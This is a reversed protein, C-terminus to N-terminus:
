WYEHSESFYPLLFFRYNKTRVAILPLVKEAHFAQNNVDERHLWNWVEHQSYGFKVFRRGDVINFSSSTSTPRQFPTRDVVVDGDM